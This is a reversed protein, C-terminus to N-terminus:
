RTKKKSDDIPNTGVFGTGGGLFPSRSLQGNSDFEAGGSPNKITALYQALLSPFNDPAQAIQQDLAAKRATAASQFGSTDFSYPSAATGAQSASNQDLYSTSGDGALQALAASRAYEEPSAVQAMTPTAGQTLYKLPDIGYTRDDPSLGLSRLEAPTWSRNQFANVEDSYGTQQAKQAKAFEDQLGTQLKSNADTLYQKSNNATDQTASKNMTALADLDGQSKNAQSSLQAAENGLGQVKAGVGPANQVLLNDLSKQGTTYTPRGYFQDLLAFRGGENQAASAQQYAKQLGGQAQTGYASGSYSDPGKYTANEYGQFKKADDASTGAGAKDVIGKAQDGVDNWKTAGQNSANTFDTASQDLGQKASDISGQIKGTFQNGFNNGKNATMYQDLNVFGSGQKATGNQANPMGSPQASGGGSGSNFTQGGGTFAPASGQGQAGEDKKKAQEEDLLDFTYPAM